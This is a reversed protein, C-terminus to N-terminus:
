PNQTSGRPFRLRLEVSSKDFSLQRVTVAGEERTADNTYDFIRRDPWAGEGSLRYGRDGLGAHINDVVEQVHENPMVWTEYARVSAAYAVPQGTVRSIEEYREAWPQGKLMGDFMPPAKPACATLLLLLALARM